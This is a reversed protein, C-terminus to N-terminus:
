EATIDLTGRRGARFNRRWDSLLVAVVVHSLLLAVLGLYLLLGPWTPLRPDYVVAVPILVLYVTWAARQVRDTTRLWTPTRPQPAAELPVLVVSRSGPVRRARHGHWYEVNWDRYPLSVARYVIKAALVPAAVIGVVLSLFFWPVPRIDLKKLWPLGILWPALWAAIRLVEESRDTSEQTAAAAVAFAVTGAATGALVRLKVSRRPPLLATGPEALEPLQAGASTM